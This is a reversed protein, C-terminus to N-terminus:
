YSSGAAMIIVYLIWFIIPVIILAWFCGMGTAKAQRIQEPTNNNIFDSYEKYGVISAWITAIVGGAYPILSVLIFKWSQNYMGKYCYWLAKFWFAPWSWGRYNFYPPYEVPILRGEVDREPRAYPNSTNQSVQPYQGQQETPWTFTSTAQRAPAAMGTCGYTTCGGNTAWCETHHPMDCANCVRVDDRPKIPTQCYPCTKGIHISDTM